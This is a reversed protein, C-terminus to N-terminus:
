RWCSDTMGIEAGDARLQVTSGDPRTAHVIEM